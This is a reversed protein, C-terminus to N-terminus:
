AAGGELALRGQLSDRAKARNVRDIRAFDKRILAAQEHHRKRQLPDLAALTSDSAEGGDLVPLLSPFPWAAERTISAGGNM